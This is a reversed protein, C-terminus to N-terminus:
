KKFVGRSNKAVESRSLRAPPNKTEVGLNKAVASGRLSPGCQCAASATKHIKVHSDVSANEREGNLRHLQWAYPWTLTEKAPSQDLFPKPEPERPSVV